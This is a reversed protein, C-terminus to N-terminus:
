SFIDLIGGIFAWFTEPAAELIDGVKKKIKSYLNRM